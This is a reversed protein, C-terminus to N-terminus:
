KGVERYNGKNPTPKKIFVLYFVIAGTILGSQLLVDYLDM